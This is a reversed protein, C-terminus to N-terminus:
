WQAHQCVYLLCGTHTRPTHASLPPFRLWTHEDYHGLEDEFSGRVVFIEEGSLFTVRPVRAGRAIRTLWMREPHQRSEYLRLREVGAIATPQFPLQSTEIALSERGTGPFQRLKVFITCGSKSFPAHRFGQASLLYSGAGFDGREDSFTGSLVYIEEGDPHDHHAFAAGPDYRVLSTVQGSEAPGHHELRKRWVGPAPSATWPMSAARRVTPQPRNTM